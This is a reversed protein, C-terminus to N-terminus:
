AFDYTKSTDLELGHKAFAGPVRKMITEISKHGLVVQEFGISVVQDDTTDVSSAYGSTEVKSMADLQAIQRATIKLQGADHLKTLAVHTKDGGSHSFQKKPDIEKQKGKHHKREAHGKDGRPADAVHAPDPNEVPKSDETTATPPTATIPTPPTATIPTPVPPATIHIPAEPTVPATDHHETTPPAADHAEGDHAEGNAHSRANRQRHHSQAHAAPRAVPELYHGFVFAPTTDHEIAVLEGHQVTPQVVHHHPLTGVINEHSTKDPSSRVHLGSATVRMPGSPGTTAGATGPSLFSLVAQVFRNGLTQNLLTVIEIAANPHSQMVGSIVRPDRQGGALMAHVMAAGSSTGATTAADRPAATPDNSKTDHTRDSM